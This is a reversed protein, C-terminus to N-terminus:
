IKLEGLQHIAKKAEVAIKYNSQQHLWETLLNASTEIAVYESVNAKFETERIALSMRKLTAAHTMIHKEGGLREAIDGLTWLMVINDEDAMNSELAVLAGRVPFEFGTTKIGLPRLAHPQSIRAGTKKGAKRCPKRNSAM